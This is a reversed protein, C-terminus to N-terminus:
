EPEAAALVPTAVVPAARVLRRLWLLHAVVALLLAALGVAAVNRVLASHNSVRVSGYTVTVPRPGGPAGPSSASYPAVAPLDPGPEASDSPLNPVAPAAQAPLSGAPDLLTGLGTPGGEPAPGGASSYTGVGSGAPSAAGSPGAAASGPGAGAPGSSAGGPPGGVSAGAPASSVTTGSTAGRRLATVQYSYGSGAATSRDVWSTAGVRAPFGPGSPSRTVQYGVLDPYSPESWALSVSRGDASPTATLGSPAAPPAAVSFSAEYSVPQSQGGSDTETAQVSLTYAGNWLLPPSVPLSFSCSSQGCAPTTASWGPHGDASTVAVQVDGTVTGDPSTAAATGSITPTSTDVVAGGTPYSMTIDPAGARAPGVGLALALGAAVGAAAASRGLRM